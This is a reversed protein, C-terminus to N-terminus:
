KCYLMWLAHTVVDLHVQLVHDHQLGESRFHKWHVNFSHHLWALWLTPESGLGALYM